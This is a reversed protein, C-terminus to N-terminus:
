TPLLNLHPQPPPLRPATREPPESEAPARLPGHGPLVFDAAPDLYLMGSTGDVFVRRGPSLLAAFNRVQGIMPIGLSRALIAAHSQPGGHEVVIGALRGPDVAFLEMVSAEHAFLVILDSSCVDSSWDSVLRTHRRRSSFFCC